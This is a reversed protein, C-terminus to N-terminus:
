GIQLVLDEFSRVVNGVSEVTSYKAIYHFTTIGTGQFSRITSPKDDVYTTVGLELCASLKDNAQILPAKQFSHKKLWRLRAFFMEKPFASIYYDIPINYPVVDNVPLNEWFDTDNELPRFWGRGFKNNMDDVSWIDMPDCPKNYYECVAPYFGAIVDDVDIAIM